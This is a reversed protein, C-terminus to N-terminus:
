IHPSHTSHEKHGLNNQIDRKTQIYLKIRKKEGNM